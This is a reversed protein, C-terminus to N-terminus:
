RQTRAERQTIPLEEVIASVNSKKLLSVVTANRDLFDADKLGLRRIRGWLGGPGIGLSHAAEKISGKDRVADLTGKIELMTILVACGEVLREIDCSAMADDTYKMAGARYPKVSQMEAKTWSKPSNKPM